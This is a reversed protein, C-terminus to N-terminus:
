SMKNLFENLNKQIKANKERTNLKKESAYLYLGHLILLSIHM